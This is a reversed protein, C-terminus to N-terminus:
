NALFNSVVRKYFIALAALLIFSAVALMAALGSAYLVAIKLPILVVALHLLFKIQPWILNASNCLIAVFNNVNEIITWIGFCCVIVLSIEVTNSSILGILINGFVIAVGFYLIAFGSFILSTTWFIKMALAKRGLALNNGLHVWMPQLATSTMLSFIVFLKQCFLFSILSEPTGLSSILAGDFGWCLMVLVQIAFFQSSQPALAVVEEIISRWKIASISPRTKMLFRCILLLNALFLSCLIPFFAFTFDLSKTYVFFIGTFNMLAATMQVVAYSRIWGLGFYIRGFLYNTLNLCLGLTSLLALWVAMQRIDVGLNTTTFILWFISFGILSTPITWLSFLGFQRTAVVLKEVSTKKSILRNLTSSGFGFDILTVYGAFSLMLLWVAVEVNSFIKSFLFIGFFSVLANLGRACISLLVDVSIGQPSQFKRFDTSKVSM